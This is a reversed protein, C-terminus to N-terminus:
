FHEAYFKPWSKKRRLLVELHITSHQFPALGPPNTEPV